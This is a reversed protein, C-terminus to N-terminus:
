LSRTHLRVCLLDDQCLCVLCNLTGYQTCCLGSNVYVLGAVIAHIGCPLPQADTFAYCVIAM